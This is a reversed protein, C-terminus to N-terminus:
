IREKYYAAIFEAHAALLDMGFLETCDPSTNSVSNADIICPGELTEVVDFSGVEFGLVAAARETAQVVDAPPTEYVEYTSGLHYASLGNAAISRKVALACTGGVVEIRTLYSYRPRAYSQVVMKLQPPLSALFSRAEDLNHIIATATTRGGCEPKIILPFEWADSVSGEIGSLADAASSCAYVKPTLLGAASLVKCALSKSIEVAHAKPPNIMAIGAEVARSAVEEYRALAADHGRFQASAFVRSVLLTCEMAQSISGELEMNILRVPIGYEAIKAALYYDSWEESEYLVGIM